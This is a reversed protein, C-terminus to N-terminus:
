QVVSCCLKIYLNVEGVTLNSGMEAVPLQVTLIEMPSVM